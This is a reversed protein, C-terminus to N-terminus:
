MRYGVGLMFDIATIAKIDSRLGTKAPSYSFAFPTATVVINPTVEYDGSVAARLSFMGLAGSTPAGGMTFPSGPDNIGGLWMVGLGLDGRVSVKPVLTYGVGVDALLQTLSATGKGNTIENQYPIPRFAVAAGADVHLKDNVRIPYGAILTLAPQAPVTLDGMGIVSGGFEFRASITKPVGTVRKHVQNGEEDEDGNDGANAVKNDGPKTGTTGTGTTGTGTTGTTGTGTTGTGTPNNPNMTSDPPKKALAEQNRACADLEAILGDIEKRKDESLPKGMGGDKLSLFRKYFFVADKCKNAQRYAQAVNYLFAPKKSDTTELAFGQKFAEAAKDFDGLNYQNEGEKYWEDATKPEATALTSWLMAAGVLGLMRKM